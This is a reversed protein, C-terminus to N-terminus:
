GEVTFRFRDYVFEAFGFRIRFTFTYEGPPLLTVDSDFGEKGFSLTKTGGSVAELKSVVNGGADTIRASAYYITYNSRLLTGPTNTATVNDPGPLQRTQLTISSFNGTAFERLTVPIYGGNMLARFSYQKDVHWNSKTTSDSPYTVNDFSSCQDTARIFSNDLDITGDAARKVTTRGTVMRVHGLVSSGSKWRSFIADGPQTKAYSEAMAQASNASIVDATLAKQVDGLAPIGYDGVKVMNRNASPFFEYSVEANNAAGSITDYAIKVATGCVNGPMQSWATPGRYISREDLYASFAEANGNGSCYPLGIYTYGKRYILSGTTSNVSRFDTTESCIWKVTAMKKMYAAAATRAQDVGPLEPLKMTFGERPDPAPETQEDTVGPSVDSSVAEAATSSTEGPEAPGGCGSLPGAALAALIMLAVATRLAGAFIYEAGSAASQTKKM